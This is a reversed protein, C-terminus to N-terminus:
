VIETLLELLSMIIPTSIFLILIKGALEVKSAISTEGADKCVQSSFECVYAIAVIKLMIGIFSLDLDIGSAIENLVEFISRLYSSSIAFIMIGTILSILIGIEPRQTKVTVALITSVLAIFAIQIIDM